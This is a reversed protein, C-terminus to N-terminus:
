CVTVSKEVSGFDSMMYRAGPQVSTSREEGKAERSLHPSPDV